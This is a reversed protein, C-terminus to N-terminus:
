ADSKRTINLEICSTTLGIPSITTCFDKVPFEALKEHSTSVEITVSVFIPDSVTVSMVNASANGNSTNPIGVTVKSPILKQYLVVCNGFINIQDPDYRSM